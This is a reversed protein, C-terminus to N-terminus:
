RSAVVQGFRRMYGFPIMQVFATGVFCAKGEEATPDDKSGEVKPTADSGAGAAAKKPRNCGTISSLVHRWTPGCRCAVDEEEEVQNGQDNRSVNTALPAVTKVDNARPAKSSYFEVFKTFPM